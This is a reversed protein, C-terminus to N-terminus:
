IQDWFPRSPQPAALLGKVTPVLGGGHLKRCALM